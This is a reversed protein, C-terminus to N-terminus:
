VVDFFYDKLVGKFDTSVAHREGHADEMVTGAGVRIDLANTLAWDEYLDKMEELWDDRFKRYEQYLEQSATSGLPPLIGNQICYNYFVEKDMGGDIVNQQYLQDVTRGAVAPLTRGFWLMHLHLKDRVAITESRDKYSWFNKVFDEYSEFSVTPLKEFQDASEAKM